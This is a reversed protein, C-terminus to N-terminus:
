KDVYWTLRKMFRLTMTIKIKSQFSFGLKWTETAGYLCYDSKMEQKKKKKGGEIEQRGVSRRWCIGSAQVSHCGLNRGPHPRVWEPPKTAECGLLSRVGGGGIPRTPGVSVFCVLCLVSAPLWVCQLKAELSLHSALAAWRLPQGPTLWIFPASEKLLCFLFWTAAPVHWM